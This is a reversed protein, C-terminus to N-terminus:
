IEGAVKTALTSTSRGRGDCLWCRVAQWPVPIKGALAGSAGADYFMKDAVDYGIAEIHDFFGTEFGSLKAGTTEM